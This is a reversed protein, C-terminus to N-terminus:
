TIYYLIPFGDFTAPTSDPTATSFVEQISDAVERSCHISIGECPRRRLETRFKGKVGATRVANRFKQRVGKFKKPDRVRDERGM